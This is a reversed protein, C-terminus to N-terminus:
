QMAGTSRLHETWGRDIYGVLFCWVGFAIAIVLPDGGLSLLFQMASAPIACLLPGIWRSAQILFRMVFSKKSM